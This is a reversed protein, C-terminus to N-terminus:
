RTQFGFGSRSPRQVVPTKIETEDDDAVISGSSGGAINLKRLTSDANAMRLKTGYVEEFAKEDGALLAIKALKDFQGKQFLNDIVSYIGVGGGYEERPIALLEYVVGKHNNKLKIGDLNDADLLKRINQDNQQVVQFYQQEEAQQQQILKQAQKEYFGQVVPKYAKAKEALKARDKLDAVEQEIIDDPDGNLRMRERVIMEQHVPNAEDLKAFREASSTNQLLPLLESPSNVQSAYQAVLQMAPTMAKFVGEYIEKQQSEIRHNLNADLLDEIDKRTEIKGDSFGFLKKDKILGSILSQTSADLKEVAPRGPKAKAKPKGNEDVEEEKKEPEEESKNLLANADEEPNLTNAPKLPDAPAAAPTPTVLAVPTTLPQALLDAASGEFTAAFQGQTFQTVEM